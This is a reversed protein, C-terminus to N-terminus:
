KVKTAKQGLAGEKWLSDAVLPFTDAPLSLVAGGAQVKSSSCYWTPPQAESFCSDLGQGGHVSATVMGQERQLWLVMM